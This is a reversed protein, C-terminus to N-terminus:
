ESLASVKLTPSFHSAFMFLILLSWLKKFLPVIIQFNLTGLAGHHPPGNSRSILKFLALKQLVTPFACTVHASNSFNKSSVSIISLPVSIWIQFDALIETNLHFYYTSSKM